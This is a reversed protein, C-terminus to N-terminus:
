WDCTHVCLHIYLGLETEELTHALTHTHTHTCMSTYVYSARDGSLLVLCLARVAVFLFFSLFLFFVYWARDGRSLVDAGLYLARVAV